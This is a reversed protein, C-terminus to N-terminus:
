ACLGHLAGTLDLTDHKANLIDRAIRTYRMITGLLAAPSTRLRM